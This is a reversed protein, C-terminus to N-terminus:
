RANPLTNSTLRHRTYCEDDWLSNTKFKEVARTYEAYASTKDPLETELRPTPTSKLQTVAQVGFSHLLKTLENIKGADMLAADTQM